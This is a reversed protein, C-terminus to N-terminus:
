LIQEGPPLGSFFFIVTILHNILGHPVCLLPTSKQSRFAWLPGCTASTVPFKLKAYVFHPRPDSKAVTDNLFHCLFTSLNFRAGRLAVSDIKSIQFGWLPGSTVNTIRFKLKAAVFHIRHACKAVADNLILM